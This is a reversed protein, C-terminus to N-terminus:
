KYKCVNKDSRKIKQASSYCMRDDACVPVSLGCILHLIQVNNPKLRKGCRWCKM